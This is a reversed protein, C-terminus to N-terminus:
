PVEFTNLNIMLLQQLHFAPAQGAVPRPDSTLAQFGNTQEGECM